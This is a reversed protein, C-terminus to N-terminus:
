VKCSIVNIIAIVAIHFLTTWWVVISFIIIVYNWIVLNIIIVILYLTRTATIRYLVVNIYDHYFCLLIIAINKCPIVNIIYIVGLSFYFSIMIMIFYFLIGRTPQGFLGKTSDQFVYSGEVQLSVEPVLFCFM